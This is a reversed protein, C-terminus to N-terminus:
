RPVGDRDDSRRPAVRALAVVGVAAVALVNIEGLTDLGRFDVLVVNVVNRGGAESLARDALEEGVPDVPSEGAVLMALGFVGLAVVGSVLLRFRRAMAPPRRDFEEPLFRLVLVFAVVTLTEIAFQTLALDPAGAFVFVLAMGYGVAGLLVVAAFRRRVVAASVAALVILAAAPIEALSDFWPPWSWWRAGTFLAAGPLAVATLLIVAAYLPLSGTQTVATVRQAVVIVGRVTAAYADAGSSPPSVADVLVNVRASGAALLGGLVLAVVSLVLPLGVGHWLALDVPAGDPYLEDTTTSVLRGITPAVAVGGVITLATLALAPVTIGSPPAPVPPRAPGPGTLLVSVFRWTYAVTLISGAVIGVLVATGWGGEHAFAEFGAEKSVFGLLPPLGVMSAAAVIVAVKISGWGPGFAGLERLDRTHAQHDVIGVVLFLTSKFLAHAVLLTCGAATAEPVGAGVLVLMFGLQSVTGMALLLKLDFQRLARIGGGIMTVLGVVVLAPRWAGSSAFVPALRAALYIGATVMTASHLYASVPTPAVMASPLWSQFPYQASKTAIGVVVLGLAIGTATGSPASALIEHLSWSGAQQALVVLGALLALGGATTVLLAHLAAARADADRHNGGILLFSTISTLEWGVYLFAVNDAMVLALMSGAFLVLLGATRGALATSSFYSFGYAMVALGITSIMGVMLLGLGDLRLGIELDLGNVWTVTESLVAGDVVRGYWHLTLALASAMPVAGVVFAWRRLRRASLVMGAGCVGYAVLLVIM